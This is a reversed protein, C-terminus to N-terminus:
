HDYEKKICKAITHLMMNTTGEYITGIKADRYYKEHPFDTTFGVGGMLDICESAIKGAVESSYYKAMAAEKVCPLKADLIRAANYVLLKASELETELRSVQHQVAQFSYLSQNFQKREFLYPITADLSGQALGIMQAGIGVRGENLINIAYKYGQGVEGIIDKESVECNDFHLVCTGSAKIGLKDEKKAVSFGPNDRRVIFATIGKYGKEPDANAMVIFVQAIDSNSIWMKTGNIVYKDGVKKATTKLAFADSGSSPESLCYSGAWSSALKPLYEKKQEENGFRRIFRASLTGHIDVLAAVAADVKSVEEIAIISNTFSTECGGYEAPVEIGMLGNEFLSELVPEVIRNEKEMQKIYPAITEKSIKAVQDRMANEEETFSTLPAPGSLKRNANKLLVKKSFDLGQKTLKRGLM